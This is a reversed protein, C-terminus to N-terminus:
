EDRNQDIRRMTADLEYIAATVMSAAALIASAILGMQSELPRVSNTAKAVLEGAALLHQEVDFTNPVVDAPDWRGIWGGM